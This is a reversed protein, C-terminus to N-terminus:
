QVRNQNNFKIWFETHDKEVSELNFRFGHNVLIERILTLGIGQGERKTSYFPTFLHPREDPSIGKGDDIIRLTPTESNDTSVRINGDSGIADVANKIINVLVQEMQQVDVNVIFPTRCLEWHWNINRRRCEGSMLVQASRLLEHLDYSEKAPPPVRVVDAFNSMFDNLGVNREIAVQMANGFDERDGDALQDKYNMSSAMISNIAGVSNNIEHSMMRILKEYARKQSALIERTLEEILIFHRHFGRDLFHSKTCKYTQIGSISIIESEGSRLKKLTDGMVGELHDLPRGILAYAEGGLMAKAAPNLMAINNDLDLIIIGSPATEILRELFYHQQRQKIRETRLQDIMRNYIAILKDLDRHGTEVITTSFDRDKISEIGSAILNLPKLFAQYLRISVFISILILIEAAIFFYRNSFLLLVSLAILISHILIVFFIFKRRLMM